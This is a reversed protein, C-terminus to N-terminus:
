NKAGRNAIPLNIITIGTLILGMGLLLTWQIVEGLLLVSFLTGFVPVLNIFIASRTAGLRKIAVFYLVFGIVTTVLSLTLIGVWFVGSDIRLESWRNEVAAGAGFMVMGFFTGWATAVLSSHSKMVAKGLNSYTAFFFMAGLVLMNGLLYDPNFELLSQLGIIVAVGLFGPIYGLYRWRPALTEKYLLYALISVIVPQSGAIVSGQSATTYKMGFLFLIGYGFIGTLALLAFQGYDKPRLRSQEARNTTFNIVLLVVSAFLFRIFGVQLPTGLTVLLKSVPWSIGWTVMTLVLLAYYALNGSKSESLM